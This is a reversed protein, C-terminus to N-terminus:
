QHFHIVSGHTDVPDTSLSGDPLVDFPVGGARIARTTIALDQVQISFGAISATAPRGFRGAFAEPTFMALQVQGPGVARVGDGRGTSPVAFLREFYALADQGADICNVASLTLAGNSHGRWRACTTSWRGTDASM